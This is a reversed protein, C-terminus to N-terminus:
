RHLGKTLLEYLYGLLSDVGVLVILFFLVVAIVIGTSKVVTKFSPWSVKKLEGITERIRTWISKREKKVVQQAM